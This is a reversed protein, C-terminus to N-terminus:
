TPLSPPSSTTTSSFPRLTPSNLSLPPSTRSECEVLMLLLGPLSTRKSMLPVLKFRLSWLHLIPSSWLRKKLMPNVSVAQILSLSPLKPRTGPQWHLHEQETIPHHLNDHSRDCLSLHTLPLFQTPNSPPRVEAKMMQQQWHPSGIAQQAAAAAAANPVFTPSGICGTPVSLCKPGLPLTFPCAATTAPHSPHPQPHWQCLGSLCSFPTPVQFSDQGPIMSTSNSQSQPPLPTTTCTYCCRRM